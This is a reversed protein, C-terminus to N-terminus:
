SREPIKASTISVLTAADSICTLEVHLRLGEAIPGSSVYSVTQNLEDM